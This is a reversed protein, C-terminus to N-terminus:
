VILTLPIVVKTMYYTPDCLVYIETLVESYPRRDRAEKVTEVDHEEIGTMKFEPIGFDNAFGVLDGETHFQLEDSNWAFSQVEAILTQHDFRFRRM